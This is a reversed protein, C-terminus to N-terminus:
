QELRLAAITDAAPFARDLTPWPTNVPDAFRACFRQLIIRAVQVTIQQGIITRVGTEFSDMSGPIRTGTEWDDSASFFQALELPDLSLDFCHTLRNKLWSLQ